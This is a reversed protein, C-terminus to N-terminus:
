KESLLQAIKLYYNEADRRFNKEVARAQEEDSCLFRLNIIEGKGDSLALQVFCGDESVDHKATIMAARRM